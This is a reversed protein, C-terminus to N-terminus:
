GLYSSSRYQRAMEEAWAELGAQTAIHQSWGKEKRAQAFMFERTPEDYHKELWLLWDPKL